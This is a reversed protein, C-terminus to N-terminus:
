RCKAAGNVIPHNPRTHDKQVFLLDHGILAELGFRFFYCGVIQHSPLFHSSTRESLQYKFMQFNSCKFMQVNSCEFIQVNSCQFVPVNSCQFMTVNYCQLMTVNYYQLMTVNSCQFMQVNLMQVNVFNSTLALSGQIRGFRDTPYTLPRKIWISYSRIGQISFLYVFCTM